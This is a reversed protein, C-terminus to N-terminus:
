SPDRFLALRLERLAALSGSVVAQAAPHVVWEPVNPHEGPGAEVAAFGARDAYRGAVFSELLCSTADAPSFAPVRAVHEGIRSQGAEGVEALQIQRALTRKQAM